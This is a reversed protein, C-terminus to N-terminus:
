EPLTPIQALLSSERLLRGECSSVGKVLMGELAGGCGRRAWAACMEAGGRLLTRLALWGPGPGHACPTGGGACTGEPLGLLLAIPVIEAAIVCDNTALRHAVRVGLRQQAVGSGTIAAVVLGELRPDSTHFLTRTDIPSSHSLTPYLAPSSESRQTSKFKQPHRIQEVILM